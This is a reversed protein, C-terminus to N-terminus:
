SSISLVHMMMEDNLLELVAQKGPNTSALYYEIGTMGYVRLIRMPSTPGAMTGLWRGGHSRQSAAVDSQTLIRVTCHNEKQAIKEGIPCMHVVVLRIRTSCFCHTPHYDCKHDRPQFQQSRHPDQVERQHQLKNARHFKATSLDSGSWRQNLPTSALNISVPVLCALPRLLLTTTNKTSERFSQSEFNPALRSVSYRPRPTATSNNFGVGVLCDEM